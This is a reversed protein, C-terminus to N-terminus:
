VSCKDSQFKMEHRRLPMGDIFQTLGNWDTRKGWRHKEEGDKGILLATHGKDPIDFIDQLLAIDDLSFLGSPSSYGDHTAVLVVIDRQDLQCKNMLVQTQFQRVHEDKEPAFFIITRHGDNRAFEPYANAGFSLILVAALILNSLVNM